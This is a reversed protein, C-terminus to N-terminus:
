GGRSQELLRTFEGADMGLADGARGVFTAIGQAETDTMPTM